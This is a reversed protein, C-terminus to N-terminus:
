QENQKKATQKKEPKETNEKATKAKEIAKKEEESIHKSIYNGDPLVELVIYFLGGDTFVAGKKLGKAVM